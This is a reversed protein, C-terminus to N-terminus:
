DARAFALPGASVELRMALPEDLSRWVYPAQRSTSQLLDPRETPCAQVCSGFTASGVTLEMTRVAVFLLEGQSLTLESPLEVRVVGDPGAVVTSEYANAPPESAPFAARDRWVRVHFPATPDCDYAATAGFGAAHFRIGEMTAPYAAPRLTSVFMPSGDATLAAEQGDCAPLPRGVTSTDAADSAAPRAAADGPAALSPQSAGLGLGTLILTLAMLNQQTM